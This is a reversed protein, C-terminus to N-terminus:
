SVFITVSSAQAFADDDEDDNTRQWTSPVMHRNIKLAVQQQFILFQKRFKIWKPIEGKWRRQLKQLPNARSPLHHFTTFSSIVCKSSRVVMYILVFSMSLCKLMFLQYVSEILSAIPSQQKCINTFALHSCKQIIIMIIIKIDDTYVIVQLKCQM